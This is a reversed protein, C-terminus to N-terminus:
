LFQGASGSDFLPPRLLRSGTIHDTDVNASRIQPQRQSIHRAVDRCPPKGRRDAYAFGLLYDAEYEVAHLFTKDCNWADELASRDIAMPTGPTVSTSFPITTAVEYKIPQCFTGSRASTSFSSLMGTTTSLSTFKAAHSLLQSRRRLQRLLSRRERSRFRSRLRYIERRGARDRFSSSRRRLRNCAPAPFLPPYRFAGRDPDTPSAHNATLADSRLPLFSPARFSCWQWSLQVGGLYEVMREIAIRLCLRDKSLRGGHERLGDVVDGQDQVTRENHQAAADARM